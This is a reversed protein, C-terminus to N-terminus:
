ECYERMGPGAAHAPHPPRAFGARYEPVPTVLRGRDRAVPAMARGLAPNDALRLDPGFWVLAPPSHNM